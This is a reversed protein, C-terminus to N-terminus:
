KQFISELEGGHIPSQDVPRPSSVRGKLLSFNRHNSSYFLDTFIETKGAVVPACDVLKTTTSETFKDTGKCTTFKLNPEYGPQECHIM